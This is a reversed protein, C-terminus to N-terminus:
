RIEEDQYFFEISFHKYKKRHSPIPLLFSYVRNGWSQYDCGEATKAELERIIAPNDRDFIFILPKDQMKRAFNKCMALIDKDGRTEEYKDFDLELGINLKQAAEELHKWDTKGETVIYASKNSRLIESRTFDVINDFDLKKRLQGLEEFLMRLDMKRTLDFYFGFKWNVKSCYIIADTPEINIDPFRLEKIDTINDRYVVEGKKVGKNLRALVSEQFDNIYIDAIGDEHLVILFKFISNVPFLAPNLKALFLNDIQRVLVYFAPDDSTISAKVVFELMGGSKVDGKAFGDLKIGKVTFKTM